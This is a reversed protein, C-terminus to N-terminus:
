DERLTLAPDAASARRAPIACAVVTAALLLVAVSAFTLPDIPRVGYLMGAMFRTLAVAGVVGILLGLLALRTGENVVLSTVSRPAAGLAIRIGFEKTRAAVAYGVVGYVGIVALALAIAAFVGLLAMALRSPALAEDVLNSITSVTGVAIAPDIDRIAASVIERVRDPNASTRMTLSQTTWVDDHFFTIALPAAPEALSEQRYDGAVGIVEM